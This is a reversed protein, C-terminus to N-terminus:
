LERLTPNELLARLAHHLEWGGTHARAAALMFALEALDATEIADWAAATLRLECSSTARAIAERARVPEWQSIREQLETAHVQARISRVLEHRVQSEVSTSRMVGLLDAAISEALAHVPALGRVAVDLEDGDIEAALRGRLRAPDAVVPLEVREGLLEALRRRATEADRTSLDGYVVATAPLRHEVLLGLAVVLTHYPLGQTKDGFLEWWGLGTPVGRRSRAVAVLVDGDGPSQARDRSFAPVLTSPFVFREATTLSVADGVIHLGDPREVDTTYQVVKEAGIRRWAAAIPQPTWAAAVRRADAYISRWAADDVRDAVVALHVRVGM